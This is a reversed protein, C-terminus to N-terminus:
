IWWIEIMFNEVSKHLESEEADKLFSSDLSYM